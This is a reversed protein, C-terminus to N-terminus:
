IARIKAVFETNNFPVTIFDNCGYEYAFTIHQSTTHTAIFLIPLQYLSYKKRLQKCYDLANKSDLEADIVVLSINNNEIIDVADNIDQTVTALIQMKTFTAILLKKMQLKDEIILINDENTENTNIDM